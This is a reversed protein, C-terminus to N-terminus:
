MEKIGTIFLKWSHRETQKRMPKKSTYKKRAMELAIREDRGANKTCKEPIGEDTRSPRCKEKGKHQIYREKASARLEKM